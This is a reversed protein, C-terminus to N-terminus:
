NRIFWLRSVVETLGMVAMDAANAILQMGEKAMKDGGIGYFFLPANQREKMAKILYAGHLDGSAEGAVIMIKFERPGRCFGGGEDPSM